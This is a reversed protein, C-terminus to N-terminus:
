ADGGTPTESAEGKGTTASSAAEPAEPATPAKPPWAAGDPLSDPRDSYIEGNPEMILNGDLDALSPLFVLEGNKSGDASSMAFFSGIGGRMNVGVPRWTPGSLGGDRYMATVRMLSTYEFKGNDDYIVSAWFWGRELPVVPNAITTHTDVLNEIHAGVTGVINTDTSVHDM